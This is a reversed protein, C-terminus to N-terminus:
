MTVLIISYAYHLTWNLWCYDCSKSVEQFILFKKFYSPSYWRSMYSQWVATLLGYKQCSSMLISRRGAKLLGKIKSVDTTYNNYLVLSRLTVISSFSIQSISVGWHWMWLCSPLQGMSLKMWILRRKKTSTYNEDVGLHLDSLFLIRYMSGTCHSFYLCNKELKCQFKCNSSFSKFIAFSNHYNNNNATVTINLIKGLKNQVM